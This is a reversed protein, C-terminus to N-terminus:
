KAIFWTHGHHYVGSRGCIFRLYSRGAADLHKSADNVGALDHSHCAAAGILRYAAQPSEPIAARAVATACEWNEQAYEVQAAQLQADADAMPAEVLRPCASSEQAASEAAAQEALAQMMPCPPHSYLPVAPAPESVIVVQRHCHSRGQSRLHIVSGVLTAGFLVGSVAALLPKNM